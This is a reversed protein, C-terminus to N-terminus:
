CTIKRGGSYGKAGKKKQKDGKVEKNHEEYRSEM